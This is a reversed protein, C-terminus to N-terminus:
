FYETERMVLNYLRSRLHFDRGTIWENGTAEDISSCWVSPRQISAKTCDARASRATRCDTQVSIVYCLVNVSKYVAITTGVGKEYEWEIWPPDLEILASALAVTANRYARGLAMSVDDEVLMHVCLSHEDAVAPDELESMAQCLLLISKNQETKRKPSFVSRLMRLWHM